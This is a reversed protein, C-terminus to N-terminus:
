ARRGLAEPVRHMLNRLSQERRLYARVASDQYPAERRLMRRLYGWLMALAAPDKRAHHLTRLVLYSVRYGLFHAVDGQAAWARRMGDREGMIRHHRFGLTTFSRTTWGRLNAKIEDIGDWGLREELPLVDQLCEWRYARTAGRVHSRTVHRQVWRGEELEYCSGSAIGLQPDAAFEALLRQFYDPATSVDADLKIAVDPVDHLAALGANFAVVDRGAVRGDVLSGDAAPAPLYRIWDRGEALERAVEATGDTSGDDVVVWATPEATQEYLCGALRRLNEAENRAPTILAYTLFGTM